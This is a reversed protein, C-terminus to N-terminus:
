PGSRLRSLWARTTDDADGFDITSGEAASRLAALAVALVAAGQEGDVMPRELEGRVCRVVHHLEDVYMQNREYAPDGEEVRWQRTDALYHELRNAHQHWRLVGNEGIVEIQRTAPRRVYDLHASGLAGTEFQLIIEAVDETEVELTSAHAVLATVRRPAGLLWCLADLEHSFTLVAGGGLDRRGSYSGRYDEWPHWDPLYEGVLARASVIRGVACAEVLAKLRALQPHFRLNYGVMLHRGASRALDLLAQVGTM